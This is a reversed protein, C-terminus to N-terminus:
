GRISMKKVLVDDMKGFQGTDRLCIISGEDAGDFCVQLFSRTSILSGPCFLEGCLFEFDRINKCTARELTVIVVSGSRDVENRLDFAPEFTTAKAARVFGDVVM